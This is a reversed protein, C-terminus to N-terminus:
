NRGWVPCLLVDSVNERGKALDCTQTMVVVDLEEWRFVVEDPAADALDDPPFFIPCGELLDGQVIDDGQVVRFWPYAPDSM